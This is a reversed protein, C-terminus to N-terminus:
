RKSPRTPGLPRATSRPRRSHVETSSPTLGEGTGNNSTETGAGSHHDGDPEHSATADPSDGENGGAGAAHAWSPQFAQDGVFSADVGTSSLGFQDTAGEHFSCTATGSIDTMGQCLETQHTSFWVPAGVIPQNDGTLTARLAFVQDSEAAVRQPASVSLVSPAPGVTVTSSPAFAQDGSYKVKLDHRGDPISLAVQAIGAPGLEFPRGVNSGDLVIEISGGDPPPTVTATVLQADAAPDPAVSV